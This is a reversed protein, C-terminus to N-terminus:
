GDDDEWEKLKSKDVAQWQQESKRAYYVTKAVVYVVVVTVILLVVWFGEAMSAM